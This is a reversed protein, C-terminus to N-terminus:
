ARHRRAGPRAAARRAAARRAPPHARRRASGPVRPGRSERRFSIASAVLVLIAIMAAVALGPTIALVVLAAVIAIGVDVLL